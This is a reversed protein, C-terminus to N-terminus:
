TYFTYFCHTTWSWLTQLGNSLWDSTHQILLLHATWTYIYTTKCTCLSHTFVSALRHVNYVAAGLAAVERVAIDHYMKSQTRWDGIISMKVLTPENGYPSNWSASSNQQRPNPLHNSSTFYLWMHTKESHSCKGGLLWYSFTGVHLSAKSEPSSISYLISTNCTCESCFGSM